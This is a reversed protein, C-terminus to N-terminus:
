AAQTGGTQRQAKPHKSGDTHGIISQKKPAKAHNVTGINATGKEPWWTNM